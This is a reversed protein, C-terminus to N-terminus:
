AHITYCLFVNRSSHSYKSLVIYTFFAFICGDLIIATNLDIARISSVLIDVIASCLFIIFYGKINLSKM